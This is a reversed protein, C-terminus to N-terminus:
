EKNYKRVGMMSKMNIRDQNTNARRVATDEIHALKVAIEKKTKVV